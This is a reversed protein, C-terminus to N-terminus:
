HGESANAPKSQRVQAAQAKTVRGGPNGWSNLVYTAINAVEDDTLQSMPPMNSNYDTGNVKVPGVLGHLIINPVRKPDGAIYDSRALPPFVGAMGQGEPQHCTSCTGAFLAKGAAIQEEVSLDGTKAAAAATAVAKMDKQARDGLYVYDVEKGSYIEKNEPGDAKLIALAGKNFARFISHDVLVYSGPVEVHFDMIAAGGSPILTTQVNEQFRTGGEFWVKDFIEGIVHFSSVLNPGGNGVYLRVNDGVHATLAKDGTLSGESGNFLVYTPHEDIAKEMDFPQHGKERYKGTTYFDGQMVYYEKDVPPLGEPPEVLILGYMGNAVHMGVPATACHYVYLGANLAKFTFRSSHGPATFSSAAGGGPGTVGHLDINHPMKSEPMNRLHFEVTDGQRVRIFSGPVTGGFTWFTYTVGESIPLDKEIVDLKVIVKAPATRGTPPPVMPPSTLVADIERGQPPGFDGKRSGGTDAAVAAASESGSEKTCGGVVLLMAIAICSLARKM